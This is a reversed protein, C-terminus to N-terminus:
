LLQDKKSNIWEVIENVKEAILKLSSETDDGGSFDMQKHKGYEKGEADVLIMEVEKEEQWRTRIKDLDIKEM